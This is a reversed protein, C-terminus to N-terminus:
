RRGGRCLACTPGFHQEGRLHLVVVVEDVTLPLLTVGVMNTADGPTIGPPPTRPVSTGRTIPIVNSPHAM